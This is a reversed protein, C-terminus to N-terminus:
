YGAVRLRQVWGLHFRVSPPRGQDNWWSSFEQAWGDDTFRTWDLHDYARTGMVIGFRASKTSVVGDNPGEVDKVIAYTTWLKAAMVDGCAGNMCSQGAWSFITTNGAKPAPLSYSGGGRYVPRDGQPPASCNGSLVCGWDYKRGPDPVPLQTMTYETCHAISLAELTKRFNPETISAFGFLNKAVMKISSGVKGDDL